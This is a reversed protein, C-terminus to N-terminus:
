RVLLVVVQQPDLKQQVILREDEVEPTVAQGTELNQVAVNPGNAALTFQATTTSGGRNFGFLLRYGEGELVRAEVLVGPESSRVEVPKAIALWQALGTLLKANNPNHFHHFAAGVFSGVIMAAGKGHRAFVMAPRGDETEALVESNGGFVDFSEEFFVTDLRDGPALRPLAPHSKSVAITSSKRLPVVQAERCGLVQDLGGGPVIDSSFGREDIWGFRAEALMVGGGEVFEILKAQHEKAMQVPYPVVLLKYGALGGTALDRVHVFDVTYGADFFARHIGQLSESLTNSGIPQGESTFQQQGGVMHSLPNYLVAVESRPPKAGLFLDMNDTVVGAVRGAAEARETVKGDLDVLGYGGSEYGSSMPYYAYINVARAGYAVATWMWDRLDAGVVPVSLKMGFVGYGAQLEGIYFGGNRITMSRTFDHGSARFYPSWPEITWAHKPYISAGYYDVVDAMKRDDPTGNWEPRSFLGPIASHSTVVGGPVVVRVAAAKAALDEALKDSIFEKWDIYDTYTLITGFRPPEVEDWSRFTRYWARNLAELTGYEKELWDRFRAMTSPCYCFQLYDGSGLHYVEAWNIIHPESWLDWGYFAPKDAVARAAATFFALVKERVGPHDFCYGPSSQSKVALGNSAIFSADPHAAGVWDPASDMYVQVILNLGVEAALDAVTELASFDYVGPEAEAATWEVWCRVTNFGLRRIQQLDQRWVAVKEPTVKELMPARATGGAYWVSVPFFGHHAPPSSPETPPPALLLLGGVIIGLCVARRLARRM